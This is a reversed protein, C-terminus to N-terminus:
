WISIDYTRSGDSLESELLEVTSAHKDSLVVYMASLDHQEAVSQLFKLLSSAQVANGRRTIKDFKPNAM